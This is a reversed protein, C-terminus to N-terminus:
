SEGPRPAQAIGQYNYTMPRPGPLYFTKLETIRFGAGIILEDVKRNLHCGGAIRKWYPTLREQWSAIGPDPARGHELFMLQGGPKIVRAMQELAELPNAISCLTWTIVITDISADALPLPEEASQPLFETQIGPPLRKRAMSQLELSPDVGVIHEVQRSYFPLNLGSGIGVELVQGRAQPIWAARLRASEKNRMILDIIRPLVYRAYFSMCGSGGYRYNFLPAPPVALCVSANRSGRLTLEERTTANLLARGMGWARFIRGGPFLGGLTRIERACSRTFGDLWAHLGEVKGSPNRSPTKYPHWVIWFRNRFAFGQGNEPSSRGSGLPLGLM